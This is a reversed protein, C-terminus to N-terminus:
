FKMCSSVSERIYQTSSAQFNGESTLVHSWILAIVGATTVLLEKDKKDNNNNDKKM